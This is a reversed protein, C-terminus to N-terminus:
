KQEEEFTFENIMQKLKGFCGRCMCIERDGPLSWFVRLSGDHSIEVESLQEDCIVCWNDKPVQRVVM